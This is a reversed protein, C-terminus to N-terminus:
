RHMAVVPGAALYETEQEPFFRIPDHRRLAAFAAYRDAMSTTWFPDISSLDIGELARGTSLAPEPADSPAPM